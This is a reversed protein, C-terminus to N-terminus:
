EDNIGGNLIKNIQSYVPNLAAFIKKYGENYLRKYLAANQQNPEFRDAYRVMNLAAEEISDYCGIGTYGIIAAGLGSAEHTQIRCVPIGLIDATIQCIEKSQSGGGSVFAKTIKTKTCHEIKEIGELLGYNIGEIIARYIHVRTHVDSFGIISGRADKMKIGPTWYPQLVLGESGCPIERLTENLVEEPSIGRKEAELIEHHAFERKFWSILWYGRFVEYEPNYKGKIAAPYPPIFKLPEIYKDTTIQVTATTGFSLSATTEDLCGTALTEAGKDSAGAIVKIGESLGTDQRCKPTINGLIEGVPVLKPLMRAEVGFQRYTINKLNTPYGFTKANFPLHGIMNGISDKMEGTLIYNLYGSLLLFKYTKKWIEPEHQKIWYAKSKQMVQESIRDM